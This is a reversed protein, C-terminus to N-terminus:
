DLKETKLEELLNIAETLEPSYNAAVGNVNEGNLLNKDIDYRWKMDDIMWTLTKILRPKLKDPM